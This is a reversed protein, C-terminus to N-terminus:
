KRVLIGVDELEEAEVFRGLWDDLTHVDRTRQIGAVIDRTVKKGFKRRLLL